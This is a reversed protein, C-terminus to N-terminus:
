QAEYRGGADIDPSTWIGVDDAIQEPVVEIDYHKKRTPTGIRHVPRFGHIEIMQSSQNM